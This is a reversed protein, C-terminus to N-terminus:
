PDDLTPIGHTAQLYVDQQGSPSGTLSSILVGGGIVLVTAMLFLVAVGRSLGRRRQPAPPASTMPPPTSLSPQPTPPPFPEAISYPTLHTLQSAQKRARAFAQVSGFRGKSDKAWAKM